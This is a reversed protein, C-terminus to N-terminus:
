DYRADIADDVPLFIRVVPRPIHQPIQLTDYIRHYCDADSMNKRLRMREAVVPDPFHAYERAKLLIENRWYMVRYDEYIHVAVDDAVKTEFYNLQNKWQIPIMLPTDLQAAEVNGTIQQYDAILDESERDNNDTETKM